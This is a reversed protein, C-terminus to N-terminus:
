ARRCTACIPTTSFRTSISLSLSLRTDGQIDIDAPSEFVVSAEARLESIHRCILRRLSESVSRIVQDSDPDTLTPPAADAAM